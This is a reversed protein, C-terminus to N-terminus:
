IIIEFKGDKIEAIDKRLNGKEDISRFEGKFDGIIKFQSDVYNMESINFKLSFSNIDWSIREGKRSVSYSAHENRAAFSFTVEGGSATSKNQSSITMGLNDMTQGGKGKTLKNFSLEMSVMQQVSDDNREARISLIIQVEKRLIISNIPIDIKENNFTLSVRGKYNEQAPIYFSFVILLVFLLRQM